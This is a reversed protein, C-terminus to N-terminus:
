FVRDFLEGLESKVTKMFDDLLPIAVKIFLYLAILIAAFVLIESGLLYAAVGVAGGVLATAGVVGM